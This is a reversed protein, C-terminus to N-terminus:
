KKLSKEDVVLDMESDSGGSGFWGGKKEVKKADAAIIITRADRVALNLESPQMVALSEAEIYKVRAAKGLGKLKALVAQGVVGGSHVLCIPAATDAYISTRFKPTELRRSTALSSGINQLGGQQSVDSLLMTTEASIFAKEGESLESLALSKLINKFKEQVTEVSLEEEDESGSGSSLTKPAKPALSALLKELV